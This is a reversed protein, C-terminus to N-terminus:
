PTVPPMTLGQRSSTMMALEFQQSAFRLGQLGFLAAIYNIWSDLREACARRLGGHGAGQLSRLSTHLAAARCPLDTKM